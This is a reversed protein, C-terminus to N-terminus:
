QMKRTIGHDVGSGAGGAVAARTLASEVTTYGCPCNTPDKEQRTDQQDENSRSVDVVCQLVTNDGCQLDRVGGDGVCVKQVRWARSIVHVRVIHELYDISVVYYSSPCLRLQLLPSWIRIILFRM